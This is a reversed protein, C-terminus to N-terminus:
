KSQNEDYIAVQLWINAQIYDQVQIQNNQEDSVAAVRVVFMKANHERLIAVDFLTIPVDFFETHSIGLVQGQCWAEDEQGFTDGFLYICSEGFNIEVPALPTNKDDDKPTWAKIQEDIDDPIVGDNDAVIDNFARHYRIAKPNKVLLTEDKNSPEINYAWASFNAYYTKPTKYEHRNIAYLQDFAYITTGDTTKLRLIADATRKCRIVREIQCHLGHPSHVAPYANIFATPKGNDMALIQKIHCPTDQGLLLTKHDTRGVTLGTPLTASELMNQLWNPVDDAIDNTLIAWHDGHGANKDCPLDIKKPPLEHKYDYHISM